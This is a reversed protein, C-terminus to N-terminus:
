RITAGGGGGGGSAADGTATAKALVFRVIVQALAAIVLGILAYVITNKASTVKGSDGGSTIYKFGGYIVMIVAVVGVLISLINIVSTLTDRVGKTTTASDKCSSGGTPDLEIGSCLGSQIDADAARVVSVAGIPAIALLLSAIIAAMKTNIKNLLKM